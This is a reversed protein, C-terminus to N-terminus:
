LKVGKELLKEALIDLSEENEYKRENEEYVEKAFLECKNGSGIFVVEKTIDAKDLLYKPIIIRGVKDSTLEETNAFIIRTLNRVEKDLQNNSELREKLKEFEDQTRLVLSKDLGITVFFTQGLEKLIKAPIVLRNAEDISRNFKGFM